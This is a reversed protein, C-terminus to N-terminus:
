KLKDDFSGDDMSGGGTSENPVRLIVVVVMVVVVVVGQLWSTQKRRKGQLWCRKPRREPRQMGFISQGAFHQPQNSSM